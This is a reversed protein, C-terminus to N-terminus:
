AGKQRRLEALRNALSELEGVRGELRDWDGRGADIRAATLARTVDSAVRMVERQLRESGVPPDWAAFEAATAAADADVERIGVAAAQTTAHGDRVARIWMATTQLQSRLLEETAAAREFYAGETRPPAQLWWLSAVVAVALSVLGARRLTTL